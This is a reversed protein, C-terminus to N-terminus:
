YIGGGGGWGRQLCTVQTHGMTIPVQPQKVGPVWVLPPQVSRDLPVVLGNDALSPFQLGHYLVGYKHVMISEHLLSLSIFWCVGCQNTEVAAISGRLFIHVTSKLQMQVNWTAYIPCKHNTRGMSQLAFYQMKWLMFKVYM